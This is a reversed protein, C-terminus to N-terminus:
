HNGLTIVTKNAKARGASRSEPPLLRVQGKKRPSGKESSVTGDRGTTMSKETIKWEM